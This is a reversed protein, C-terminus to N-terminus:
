FEGLVRGADRRALLQGKLEPPLNLDAIDRASLANLDLRAHRRGLALQGLFHRLVPTLLDISLTMM